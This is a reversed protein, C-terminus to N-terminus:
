DTTWILSIKDAFLQLNIDNHILKCLLSENSEINFLTQLNIYSVFEKVM